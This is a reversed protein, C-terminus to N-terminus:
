TPAYVKSIKTKHENHYNTVWKTGDKPFSLLYDNKPIVNNVATYVEKIDRQNKNNELQPPEM